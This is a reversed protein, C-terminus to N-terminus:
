WKFFKKMYLKFEKKDNSNIVLKSVSNTGYKTEFHITHKTKIIKM